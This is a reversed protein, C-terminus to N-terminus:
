QYYASRWFFSEVLLRTRIRSTEDAVMRLERKGDCRWYMVM